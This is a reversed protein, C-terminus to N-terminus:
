KEVPKEKFKIEFTGVAMEMRSNHSHEQFESNADHM